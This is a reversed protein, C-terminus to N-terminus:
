KEPEFLKRIQVGVNSGVDLYVNHCKYEAFLQDIAAEDNRTLNYFASVVPKSDYFASVVSTSDTIRQALLYITILLAIAGAARSGAARFITVM